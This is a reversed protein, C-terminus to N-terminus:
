HTLVSAPVIRKPQGPPQWLFRCGADGENEYYELKLAHEGAQLEVEGSKEVMPHMGDNDVVQNGNIFLRSGDDSEVYFTYRGPETVKLKGTWRIYFHDSLTTGPWSDTGVNVNIKRDVREVTPRKDASISPFSEVAGDLAFLEAKLGANPQDILKSAPCYLATAPVIQKERDPQQWSFKCGAQGDNEYYDIRVEHEGSRLEIEGSKEEMAHLGGNDVVQRGDIFLRSGDDSELFFTYKGDTPVRLFGDWRISFHDKLETGPWAEDGVNVDITADVRELTPKKGEAITPFDELASEFAHITARLGAVTGKPSPEAPPAQCSLVNAPVIEKDKGPAQWLFKCGAQGDNEFYEIKLDHDGAKLQTEGSKEEMAHLGGHDVVQQGDIFLRSGDDSVLFFAYKGEAAIRIKGTWRIFFHDSWRTGPWADDGVDVNITADVRKLAPAREAPINPFEEIANDSPYFEALLGPQTTEAAALAWGLGASCCLLFATIIKM